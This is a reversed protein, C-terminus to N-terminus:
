AAVFLVVYHAVFFVFAAITGGGSRTSTVEYAEHGEHGM